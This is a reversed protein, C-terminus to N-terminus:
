ASLGGQMAASVSYSKPHRSLEASQLWVALGKRPTTQSPGSRSARETIPQLLVEALVEALVESNRGVGLMPSQGPQDLAPGRPLELEQPGASYAPFFWQASAPLPPQSYDHGSGGHGAHRDGAMHFAGHGQLHAVHPGGLAPRAHQDDIDGEGADRGELHALGTPAVPAGPRPKDPFEPTDWATFRKSFAEATGRGYYDTLWKKIGKTLVNILICNGRTNM